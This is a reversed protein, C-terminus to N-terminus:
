YRIQLTVRANVTQEGGEVPTTAESVADALRAQAAFPIPMPPNANNVQIGVIEQASLNLSQLVVDAQAQADATAEQLATDRAADIADDAAVFSVSNIQNAGTAIADDLLTGVEDTPMQFSVTNSGTYGTIRPQNGDYNYQPNLRIGTTQLQDVNQSRLLEIVAASRQAIEQQVAEANEGQATVGMQVRALTAPTSESGEGTVTLVRAIPEQARVPAVKATNMVGVVLATLGLVVGASPLAWQRLTAVQKM